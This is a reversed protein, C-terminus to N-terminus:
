LELRHSLQCYSRVLDDFRAQDDLSLSQLADNLLQAKKDFLHTRAYEAIPQRADSIYITAWYIYDDPRHLNKWWNFDKQLSFYKNVQSLLKYLRYYKIYKDIKEILRQPIHALILAIFIIAVCIDQLVSLYVNVLDIKPQLVFIIKLYFYLSATLAAITIFRFRMRVSLLQAKKSKQHLMLACAIGCIAAYISFLLVFLADSTTRPLTTKDQWNYSPTNLISTFYILSLVTITLFASSITLSILMIKQSKKYALICSITAAAPAAISAYSYFLWSLNNIGTAKDILVSLQTRGLTTASLMFIMTALGSSVLFSNMYKKQVYIKFTMIVLFSTFLLIITLIINM